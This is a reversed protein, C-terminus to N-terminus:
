ILQVQKDIKHEKKQRQLLFAPDEALYIYTWTKAIKNVTIFIQKFCLLILKQQWIWEILSDSIYKIDIFITIGINLKEQWLLLLDAQLFHRYTYRNQYCYGVATNGTEEVSM